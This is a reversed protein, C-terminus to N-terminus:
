RAWVLKVWRDDSRIGPLASSPIAPQSPLADALKELLENKLRCLKYRLERVAEDEEDSLPRSLDLASFSYSSHREAYCLVLRWFQGLRIGTLQKTRLRRLVFQGILEARSRQYFELVESEAHQFFIHEKFSSLKDGSTQCISCTWGNRSCVLVRNSGESRCKKEHMKLLRKSAMTKHCLICRPLTRARTGPSDELNPVLIASYSEEDSLDEGHEPTETKSASPIEGPGAKSESADLRTTDTGDRSGLDLLISQSDPPLEFPCRFDPLTPM